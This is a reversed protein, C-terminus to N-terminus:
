KNITWKLKNLERQQKKNLLPKEEKEEEEEFFTQLLSIFGALFIIIGILIILEIGKTVGLTAFLKNLWQQNM